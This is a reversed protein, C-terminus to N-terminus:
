FIVIDGANLGADLNLTAVRIAGVGGVGDADYLLVGTTVTYILRHAATTAGSGVFFAGAPLAGAPGLGTFITRDFAFTDDASSFDRVIDGTVGNALNDFVFTDHGSGSHLRDTGAGGIFLDDGDGGYIWDIGAGGSVVDNGNDGTLRDNGAFGFVADDGALGRAEDNGAGAFILDRTLASGFLISAAGNNAEVLVRAVANIVAAGGHGDVTGLLAHAYSRLLKAGEPPHSLGLGLSAALYPGGDALVGTTLQVAHDDLTERAAQEIALQLLATNLEKGAIASSLAGAAALETFDTMLASLVTATGPAATLHNLVMPDLADYTMRWPILGLTDRALYDNTLQLVLRPLATALAAMEAPFLLFLATLGMSHLQAAFDLSFPTGEAEVPVLESWIAGTLGQWRGFQTDDEYIGNVIAPFLFTDQGIYDVAETSRNNFTAIDGFVASNHVGAYNALGAKTITTNFAAAPIDWLKIGLFKETYGNMSKFAADVTEIAGFTEAQLNNRVATIAALGGGLSHGTLSIAAGPNAAKVQNLFRQADGIQEFPGNEYARLVDIADEPQADNWGRYSIVIESDKKYAAAFFGSGSDSRQAIRQWGPTIHSSDYYVDLALMIRDQLTAM